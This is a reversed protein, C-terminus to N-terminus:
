NIKLWTIAGKDKRSSQDWTKGVGPHTLGARTVQPRMLTNAEGRSRKLNGGAVQELEAETLQGTSGPRRDARQHQAGHRGQNAETARRNAGITLKNEAM